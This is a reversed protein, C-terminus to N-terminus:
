KNKLQNITAKRLTDKAALRDDDADWTLHDKVLLTNIATEDADMATILDALRIEDPTPGPPPPDPPPDAWSDTPRTYLRGSWPGDIRNTTELVGIGSFVPPRGDTRSIEAGGRFVDSDRTNHLEVWTQLPM